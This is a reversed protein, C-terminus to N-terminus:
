VAVTCGSTTARFKRCAGRDGAVLDRAAGQAQVRRSEPCADQPHSPDRQELFKRESDAGWGM